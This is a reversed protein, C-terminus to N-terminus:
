RQRYSVVDLPLFGREVDLPSIAIHSIFHKLKKMEPFICSCILVSVPRLHIVVVVPVHHLGNKQVM